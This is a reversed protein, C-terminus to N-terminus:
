REAASAQQTGLTDLWSCTHQLFLNFSETEGQSCAFGHEADPYHRYDVSVGADRCREALAVGEDRLPDREATVLLLPPLRDLHDSRLPLARELVPSDPATDGLYTDWFWIMLDRTLAQGTARETYSPFDRCYHEGVPYISLVGAIASMADPTLDLATCLALNGGASDGALVISGNSPGAWERNAALWQAAALCDDHAAPFRHEPALRYDVAVVTCGSAAALLTCFYHHTKLDGIVWGGGHFYLIVPQSGAQAGSYIRTALAGGDVPIEAATFRGEPVSNRWGLYNALRYYWRLVFVKLAQM